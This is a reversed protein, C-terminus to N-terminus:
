ESAAHHAKFWAEGDEKRLPRRYRRRIIAESNGAWEAVQHKSEGKAIQYSIYSHRMVDQEWEEILKAGRALKSIEERDHIQCCKGKAGVWPALLKKAKDNLPVFREEMTKQAVDAGVQLYGRQWDFAEWQLRTEEFPRLGLWCGIILYPRLREPLIALIAHATAPEWIPVARRPEPLVKIAQAPHAEGKPWFNWEKCRNFFTKWTALRNNRFRPAPTGRSIWTELDQPHIEPLMVGAHEKDFADLEKRLGALGLTSKDKYAALFRMKAASFLVREITLAGSDIYHDVAETISIGRLKAQCDQMQRLWAFAPREGALQKVLEVIQADEITLMRGGQSSSIRRAEKMARKEALAETKITTQIGKGAERWYVVWRGDDRPRITVSANGFTIIKSDSSRAM